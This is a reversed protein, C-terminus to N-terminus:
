GEFANEVRGRVGCELEFLAGSLPAEKLQESSLNIRASTVFLRDLDAGGFALSTPRPVPMSIAREISGDPRYRTIRWGDWHASWVHGEADVCLGDPYGQDTPIVAFIQRNGLEGSQLDFEYQYITRNSSDTFYMRDGQPNWGFGNGVVFGSDLGVTKRDPEVRWIRGTPQTEPDHMSAVWFRGHPDCKGDNFRNEPVSREPHAFFDIEGNTVDITALGSRLAAVLGGKSRRAIAGIESPVALRGTSGDEANWWLIAPAKIDVFYLRNEDSAWVPGEGLIANAALVCKAPSTV